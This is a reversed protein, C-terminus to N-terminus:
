PALNPCVAFRPTIEATNKRSRLGYVIMGTVGECVRGGYSFSSVVLSWREAGDLEAPSAPRVSPPRSAAFDRLTGEYGGGSSSDAAVPMPRETRFSTCHILNSKSGRGALSMVM